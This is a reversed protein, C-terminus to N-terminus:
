PWRHADQFKAWRTYGIFVPTKVISLDVEAVAFERRLAKTQEDFLHAHMYVQRGFNGM